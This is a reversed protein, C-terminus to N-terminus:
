GRKKHARLQDQELIPCTPCDKMERERKRGKDKKRDAASTDEIKMNERGGGRRATIISREGYDELM